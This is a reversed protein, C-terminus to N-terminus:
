GTVDVKFSWYRSPIACMPHAKVCTPNQTASITTQGVGVARFVGNADGTTPDTTGSVLIVVAPNASTPEAWPFGTSGTLNVALTQGVRLDVTTGAEAQTVVTQTGPVATITTTTTSPPPGLQVTPSPLAVATGSTGSSAVTTSPPSSTTSHPSASGYTSSGALAGGSPQGPSLSQRGTTPTKALRPGPHSASSPAGAAVETTTPVQGGLTVAAAVGGLAAAVTLTGVAAGVRRQHRRRRRAVGALLDTRTESTPRAPHVGRAGDHMARRLRDDLPDPM